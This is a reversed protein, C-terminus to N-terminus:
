DERPEFYKSDLTSGIVHAYYPRADGTRHAKALLEQAKKNWAEKDSQQVRMPNTQGPIPKADIKKQKLGANGAEAKEKLEVELDPGRVLRFQNWAYVRAQTIKGQDILTQVVDQTEPDGEVFQVVDDLYKSYAPHNKTMYQEAEAARSLPMMRAELEQDVLTKLVSRIADPPIGYDELSALPDVPPDEKKPAPIHTRLEANEEKLKTILAIAEKWGKEEEEKSKYKNPKNETSPEHQEDGAPLGSTSESPSAEEETEEQDDPPEGGIPNARNMADAQEAIVELPSKTKTM